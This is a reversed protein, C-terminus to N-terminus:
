ALHRRLRAVARRLAVQRPRPIPRGVAALDLWLVASLLIWRFTIRALERLSLAARFDPSLAPCAEGAALFILLILVFHPGDVPQRCILM